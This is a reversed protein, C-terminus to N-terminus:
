LRGALASLFKPFSDDGGCLAMLFISSFKALAFGTCVHKGSLFTEPAMEVRELQRNLKKIIQLMKWCSILTAESKDGRTKGVLKYSKIQVLACIVKCSISLGTSTLVKIQVKTQRSRRLEVERCLTNMTSSAM